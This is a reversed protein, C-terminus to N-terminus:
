RPLDDTDVVFPVAQGAAIDARQLAQSGDLWAPPRERQTRSQVVLAGVKESDAWGAESGPARSVV